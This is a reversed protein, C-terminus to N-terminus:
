AAVRRYSGDIKERDFREGGRKKFTFRLTDYRHGVVRRGGGYQAHVDLGWDGSGMEYPEQACRANLGASNNRASIRRAAM